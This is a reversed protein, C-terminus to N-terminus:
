SLAEAASVGARNAGAEIFGRASAPLSARAEQASLAVEGPAGAILQRALELRAGIPKVGVAQSPLACAAALMAWGRDAQLM